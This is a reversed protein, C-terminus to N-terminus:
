RMLNTDLFHTGDRLVDRGPEIGFKKQTQVYTNLATRAATDAPNDKLASMLWGVGEENRGLGLLLVGIRTRQPATRQLQLTKAMLSSVQATDTELRTVIRLVQEAEERKHAAELCVYLMQQAERELPALQTAKRLWTEADDLEAQRIAIRGREVLGGVNDPEDMLLKDLLQQAENLEASDLLCRVLGLIVTTQQPRRERLCRYQATAERIKGLMRLEDAVRLRAEDSQPRLELARQYDRLADERRNLLEAVMGRLLFAQQNEPQRKALEDLTQQAKAFQFEKIYGVALAEM